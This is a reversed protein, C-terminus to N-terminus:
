IEEFKVLVINNHRPFNLSNQLEGLSNSAFNFQWLKRFITNMAKRKEKENLISVKRTTWFFEDKKQNTESRWNQKTFLVLSVFLDKTSYQLNSIHKILQM